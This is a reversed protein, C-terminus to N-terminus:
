ISVAKSTHLAGRRLGVSWWLEVVCGQDCACGVLYLGVEVERLFIVGVVFM